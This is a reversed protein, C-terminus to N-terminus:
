IKRNLNLPKQVCFRGLFCDDGKWEIGCFSIACASIEKNFVGASLPFTMESILLGAGFIEARKWCFFHREVECIHSMEGCWNSAWWVFFFSFGLLIVKRWRSSSATKSRSLFEILNGPRIKFYIQISGAAFLLGRGRLPALVGQFPSRIELYARSLSDGAM